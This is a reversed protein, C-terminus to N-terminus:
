FLLCLYCATIVYHIFDTRQVETRQQMEGATSQCCKVESLFKKDVVNTKENFYTHKAM